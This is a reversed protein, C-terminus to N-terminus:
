KEGSIRRELKARTVTKQKRRRSILNWFKGSRGLDIQEKDLGEVSVLLAVPKGKRTLVVSEEQARTVCSELDTREVSMQRM